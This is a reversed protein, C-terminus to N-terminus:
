RSQPQRIHSLSSRAALRICNGGSRRAEDLAWQARILMDSIGDATERETIGISVLPPPYSGEATATLANLMIEAQRRAAFLNADPDFVAFDSESLRGIIQDALLSSELTEALSVVEKVVHRHGTKALGILIIVMDGPSARLHKASAQSFGRTTLFGTEPDREAHGIFRMASDSVMLLLITVGVALTLISGMTQSVLAYATTIYDQAFTGVGGFIQAMYPKLLFHAATVALLTILIWDLLRRHPARWAASLALISVLTYPLQYLMQRLFDERPLDLILYYLVSSAAFIAVLGIWDRELRTRLVLGYTVLLLAALLALAVVMRSLEVFLGAGIFYEGVGNLTGMAFALAFWRAAVNKRDFLAVALFSLTMAVTMTMMIALVFIAGSM